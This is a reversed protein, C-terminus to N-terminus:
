SSFVIRAMRFITQPISYFNLETGLILAGSLFNKSSDTIMSAFIGTQWM